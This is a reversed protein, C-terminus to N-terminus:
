SLSVVAPPPRVALSSAILRGGRPVVARPRLGPPALRVGSHAQRRRRQGLLALLAREGPYRRALLLPLLLLAPLLYAVAETLGPPAWFVAVALLAIAGFGLPLRRRTIARYGMM